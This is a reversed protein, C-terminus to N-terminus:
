CGPVDMAADGCVPGSSADVVSADTEVVDEVSTESSVADVPVDAAVDVTADSHIPATTEPDDSCGQCVIALALCLSTVFKSM